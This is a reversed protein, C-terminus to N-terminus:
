EQWGYVKGTRRDQEKEIASVKEIIRMREAIVKTNSDIKDRLEKLTAEVKETLMELHKVRTSQEANIASVEKDHSAMWDKRDALEVDYADLREDLANLQATPEDLLMRMERQLADDLIRMERQLYDDLQNRNADSYDRTASFKDETHERFREHDSRTWRDSAIEIIAQQLQSQNSEMRTLDRLFPSAALALIALILTGFGALTQWNTKGLGDVKETLKSVAASLTDFANEVKGEFYQFEDKSLYAPEKPKSNRGQTTMHNPSRYPTRM